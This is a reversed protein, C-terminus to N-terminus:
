RRRRAASVVPAGITWTGVETTAGDTVTATANGASLGQLNSYRFRAVLDRIGDHNLDVLAESVPSTMTRSVGGETVTLTLPAQPHSLLAKAPLEDSVLLVTFAGTGRAINRAPLVSPMTVLAMLSRDELRDVGLAVTRRRGAHQRRSM